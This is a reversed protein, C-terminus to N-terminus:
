RPNGPTPLTPRRARAASLARRIDPVLEALPAGGKRVVLDVSGALHSRQEATLDLSTLVVVPLTRWEPTSRLRAVTEFGDMNPMMLDLLVLQPKVDAIRDLAQRGDAAEAVTWGDSELVRRLIDRTTPEPAGIM